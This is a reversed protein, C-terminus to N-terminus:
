DGDMRAGCHPCTYEGENESGILMLHESVKGCKDCKLKAYYYESCKPTYCLLILLISFGICFCVINSCIVCDIVEM